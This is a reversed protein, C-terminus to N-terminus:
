LFAAKIKRREFHLNFERKVFGVLKIYQLKVLGFYSMPCYAYKEFLNFYCLSGLVPLRSIGLLINHM